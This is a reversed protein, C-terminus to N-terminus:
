AERYEDQLAHDSDLRMLDGHGPLLIADNPFTEGIHKYAARVGEISEGIKCRRNRAKAQKLIIDGGFLLHRDATYLISSGATHSPLHEVEFGLAGFREFFADDFWKVQAEDPLHIPKKDLLLSYTNCRRLEVADDAHVYLAESLGTEILHAAAGVHDFHGHTAVCFEPTVGLDRLYAEVVEGEGVPDVVFTGHPQIVVFCNTRLPGLVLRHISLDGREYALM